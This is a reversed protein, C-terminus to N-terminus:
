KCFKAEICGLVLRTFNAREGRVSGGPPCVHDALDHADDRSESLAGRLHVPHHVVQVPHRREKQISHMILSNELNPFELFGVYLLLLLKLLAASLLAVVLNLLKAVRRQSTPCSCLYVSERSM